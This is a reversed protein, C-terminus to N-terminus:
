GRRRPAGGSGQGPKSTDSGSPGKRSVSGRGADVIRKIEERDTILPRANSGISLGYRDQGHGWQPGPPAELLEGAENLLVLSAAFQGGVLTPTIVGPLVGRLQDAMGRVAEAGHVTADSLADSVGLAELVVQLVFGVL